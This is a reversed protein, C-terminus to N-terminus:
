SDAGDFSGNCRREHARVAVIDEYHIWCVNSNSRHPWWSAINHWMSAMETSNPAPKGGSVVIADLFTDLQM